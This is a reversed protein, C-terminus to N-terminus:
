KKGPPPPPPTMVLTEQHFTARWQGGRQVWLTSSWTPSPVPQGMVTGKGTWKYLHVATNDDIWIVRSEENKWGPSFKMEPLIKLTESISSAGMSEVAISDPLILKQLAAADHKEFAVGIAIENAIIQKEAAARNAQAFASAAVGITLAALIRKTM